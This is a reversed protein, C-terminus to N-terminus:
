QRVNQHYVELWQIDLVIMFVLSHQGRRSISFFIYVYLKRSVQFVNVAYFIVAYTGTLQMLVFVGILLLFPKFASPKRLEHLTSFKQDVQGDAAGSGSEESKRQSQELAKIEGEIDHRDGRLWRIAQFM